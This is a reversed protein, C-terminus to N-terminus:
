RASRGWHATESRRTQSHKSSSFSWWLIMSVNDASGPFLAPDLIGRLFRGPFGPLLELPGPSDIQAPAQGVHVWPGSPM